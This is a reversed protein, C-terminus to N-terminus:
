QVKESIFVKSFEGMPKLMMLGHGIVTGLDYTDCIALINQLVPSSGFM